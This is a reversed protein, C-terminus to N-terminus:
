VVRIGLGSVLAAAQDTSLIAGKFFQALATIRLGGLDAARLDAGDFRANKLHADSLNALQFRAAGARCDLWRTDSLNAKDLVTEALSCGLFQAGRLALGSLNAGDFACHEFHLAAHPDAALDALDARSLTLDALTTTM